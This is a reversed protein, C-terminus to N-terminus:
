AYNCAGDLTLHNLFSPSFNTYKNFQKTICERNVFPHYKIEAVIHNRFTIEVVIKM